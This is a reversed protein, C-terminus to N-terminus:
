EKIINKYYKTFFYKICNIIFIIILIPSMYGIFIGTYFGICIRLPFLMIENLYNIEEDSLIIHGICVVFTCLIGCFGFGITISFIDDLILDYNNKYYKYINYNCNNELFKNILIFDIMKYKYKNYM